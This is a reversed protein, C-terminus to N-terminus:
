TVPDRRHWVWLATGLLAFAASTVATSLLTGTVLPSIAGALLANFLLSAFSAMSAASGRHHPFLDLLALQQVPFAIGLAVGMAAPGVLVWPVSPAVLCLVVNVAAAAVLGAMTRDLLTDTPVRGALRRTLLSGVVMGGIMPVFLIWFDQEGRGLLDVVIIPAAVVYLFYSSFTFASCFALREFRWSRAVQWLGGLIAGVRVPTRDAPPLTEPLVVATLVAALIGYGAVFWFIWHWPGFRLIEGGIVPAIAPAIAFIMMVQAMLRQAEAGSFLDRIVARSVITAAGAFVGQVARGVLLVGMSPALACLVSAVTYGLLGTIMVRKRGLADSLPGHFVSMVAFTLLYVSTIQQLGAADVRFDRGIAEFGPFVTDITFPGIMALSALTATLLLTARAPAGSTPQEPPRSKVPDM